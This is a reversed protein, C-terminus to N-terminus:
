HRRQGTLTAIAGVKEAYDALLDRDHETLTVGASEIFGVLDGMERFSINVLRHVDYKYLESNSESM